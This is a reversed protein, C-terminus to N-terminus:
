VTTIVEFGCENLLTVLKQSACNLIVSRGINVTNCAFNIADERSVALRRHGPVRAEIAANSAEDFAPPYYLLYGRELPCFCTDLHYFSPDRLRLAQVEVDIFQELYAKAAIDSRMGHGFWLLAENRDFLADGAGEFLVSPPLTHVEFGDAMLWKAFYPSELQREPYRFSSLVARERYILAANATFVLDPLGAVAPLSVVEAREGLLAYLRSWQRSALEPNTAHIQGEMWPNIVYEVGFHLPPCMLFRSRSM